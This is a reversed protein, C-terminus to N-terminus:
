WWVKIILVEFVPKRSRISILFGTWYGFYKLKIIYLVLMHVPYIIYFAYQLVRGKIFGRKGNYLNILVFAPAVSIPNAFFCCGIFGSLLRSKRMIFLFLMFGVGMIGYDAKLILSLGFVILLGYVLKKRDNRFNDYIYIACLGLFLTFFVNQRSFFFNGNQWLNWPIESIVSFILLRLGYKERSRTHLYGEILLFCYLPFATRGIFRFVQYWTVDFGMVTVFPTTFYNINRLLALSTHDLLMTLLAITKLVSGSLLKSNVDATNEKATM